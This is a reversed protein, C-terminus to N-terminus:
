LFRNNLYFLILTKLKKLKGTLADTQAKPKKMKEENYKTSQTHNITHSKAPSSIAVLVTGNAVSNKGKAVSIDPSTPFKRRTKM